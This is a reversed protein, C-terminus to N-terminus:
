FDFILFVFCFFRSPLVCSHEGFFYLEYYGTKANASKDRATLAVDVAEYFVDQLGVQTKASCEMVRAASLDQGKKEARAVDVISAGRAKLKELAHADQRLDSKTGVLLFPTNPCRRRIEPIWKNKVNELSTSSIISYCIIFVDTNPYSLPRLRDYDDQGPTDWLAVSVQRGNVMINAQCNDFVNPIYDTPFSDTTYSIIMCTKGVAGDGVFVVKVNEM